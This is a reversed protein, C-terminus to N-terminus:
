LNDERKIKVKQTQFRDFTLATDCAKVLEIFACYAWHGYEQITQLSLNVTFQTDMYGWKRQLSDYQAEDLFSRFHIELINALISSILKSCM